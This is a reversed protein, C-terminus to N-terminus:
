GKLKENKPDYLVHGAVLSAVRQRGLVSVTIHGASSLKNSDIVAMVISAGVRHGYGASVVLGADVGDFQVVSLYVAEGFPTDDDDDPDDLILTIFERKSGAQLEAQL